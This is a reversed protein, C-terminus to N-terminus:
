ARMRESESVAMPARLSLPPSPALPGSLSLSPPLSVSLACCVPFGDDLPLPDLAATM